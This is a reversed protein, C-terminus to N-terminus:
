AKKHARQVLFSAELVPDVRLPFFKSKLSCLREKLLQGGRKQSSLFTFPLTAEGSFTGM